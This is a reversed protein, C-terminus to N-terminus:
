EKGWQMDLLRNSQIRRELELIYKDSLEIELYNSNPNANKLHVKAKQAWELALELKDQMETAIALNFAIKAKDIPKTKKGLETIWISEAKAWQRDAAFGAAEQMRPNYANFLLRESTKWTPIFRKAAQNGLQHSMEALVYEPIEKFLITSDIVIASKLFLSDSITFATLPKENGNVYMSCTIIGDARLNVFAVPDSNFFDSKMKKVSDNVSFLLREVVFLADYDEVDYFESQLEPSLKAVSFWETDTRLPERYIAITNFFNSESFVAAIEAIASWVMSDLSLPYNMGISQGDFTREIGFNEPQTVTNNLILVNQASVPLTVLAPEQIDISFRYISSCSSYILLLLFLIKEAKNKM